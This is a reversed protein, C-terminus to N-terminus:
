AATGTRGSPRGVLLLTVITLAATLAMLPLSVYHFERVYVLNCPTKISCVSTELSPYWELLYHYISVPVMVILSIVSVWRLWELRPRLWLVGLILVQPYIFSRQVWCLRCPVYHKVESMYLSGLMTVLAVAFAFPVALPALSDRVMGWIDKSKANWTALLRIGAISLVFAQCLVALLALFLIIIDHV